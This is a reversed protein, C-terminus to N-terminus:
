SLALSSLLWFMYSSICSLRTASRLILLMISIYLLSNRSLLPQRDIMINANNILPDTWIYISDIEKVELSKHTLNM